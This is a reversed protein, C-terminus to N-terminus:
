LKHNIAHSSSFPDFKILREVPNSRKAQCSVHGDETCFEPHFLHCLNNLFSQPFNAKSTEIVHMTQVQVEM